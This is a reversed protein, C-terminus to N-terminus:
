LGVAMCAPDLTRARCRQVVLIKSWYCSSTSSPTQNMARLYPIQDLNHIYAHMSSITSPVPYVFIFATDEGGSKSLRTDCDCGSQEGERERERMRVMPSGRCAGLNGTTSLM